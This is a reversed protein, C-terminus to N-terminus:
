AASSKLLEDHVIFTEFNIVIIVDVLLTIVLLIILLKNYRAFIALKKSFESYDVWVLNNGCEVIINYVM